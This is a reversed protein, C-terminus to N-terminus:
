ELVLRNKKSRVEDISYVVGTSKEEKRGIVRILCLCLKSMGINVVGASMKSPDCVFEDYPLATKSQSCDRVAERRTVSPNFGDVANLSKFGNRM